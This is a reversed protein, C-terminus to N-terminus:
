MVQTHYIRTSIDYDLRDTLEHKLEHLTELNSSLKEFEINFEDYKNSVSYRMTAQEEYGDSPPRNEREYDDSTLYLYTLYVGSYELGDTILTGDHYDSNRMFDINDKFIGEEQLRRAIDEGEDFSCGRVNIEFMIQGAM